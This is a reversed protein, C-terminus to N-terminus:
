LANYEGPLSCIAYCGDTVVRQVRVVADDIPTRWSAAPRCECPLNVRSKSKTTM